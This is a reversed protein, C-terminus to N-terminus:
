RPQVLTYHRANTNPDSNDSTSFVLTTGWHSYRGKGEKAIDLHPAHAPGLQSNGECLVLKSATEATSSPTDGSVSLNDKYFSVGAGKVFPRKFEVLTGAPCTPGWFRDMLWLTGLFSAIVVVAAGSVKAFISLIRM